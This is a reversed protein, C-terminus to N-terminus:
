LCCSNEQYDHHVGADQEWMDIVDLLPFLLLFAVTLFFRLAKM